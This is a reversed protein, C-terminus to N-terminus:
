IFRCNPSLWIRKNRSPDILQNQSQTAPSRQLVEAVQSQYEQLIRASKEQNPYSKDVQKASSVLAKRLDQIQQKARDEPTKPRNHWFAM